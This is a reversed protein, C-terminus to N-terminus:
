SVPLSSVTPWDADGYLLRKARDVKERESETYVPTVGGREIADSQAIFGDGIVRQNEIVRDLKKDLKTMDEKLLRNEAWLDTIQVPKRLLAVVVLTLATIIAVALTILPGFNDGLGSVAGTVTPLTM